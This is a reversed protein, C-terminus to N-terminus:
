ERTILFSTEGSEDNLIIKEVTAETKFHKLCGNILGFAFDSMKRVSSYHMELTDKTIRTTKFKPLEAEPYLKLVQVHITDEIRELFDLPDDYIDIMELYSKTFITFVYEGFQIFLDNMSTNTKECIHRALEFLEKHDYTGVTTYVGNSKLNSKEITEDIIEYGHKQEILELFERFIIGKM